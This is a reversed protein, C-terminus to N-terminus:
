ARAGSMGTMTFPAVQAVIDRDADSLDALAQAQRDAARGVEWGSRALAAKVIKKM